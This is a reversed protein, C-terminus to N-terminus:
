GLGVIRKGKEEKKVWVFDRYDLGSKETVNM